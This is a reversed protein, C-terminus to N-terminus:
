RGSKPPVQKAVSSVTAAATRSKDRTRRTESGFESESLLTMIESAADHFGGPLGLSRFASAIEEMEFIWRGADAPLRAINGRARRHLIPQSASFEREFEEAFGSLEAALLVATLLSNTGKTAAAYAMKFASARGIEPGLHVLDFGTGDLERLEPVDPGSAYLRPRNAGSPPVGIIGADVLSSGSGGFLGAIRMVRAPAIANAEVFTIRGGGRLAEVTAAAEPEAESPPVVSFVIGCRELLERRSELPEVRAEAMRDITERSRGTAVACVALGAATVCKAISAGMEGMGIFGVARDPEAM